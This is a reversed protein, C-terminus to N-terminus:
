RNKYQPKMIKLLGASSSYIRVALWMMLMPLLHYMASAAVDPADPISRQTQWLLCAVIVALEVVSTSLQQIESHTKKTWQWAMAFGVSGAIALSAGAITQTANPVVVMCCMIGVIGSVFYVTVFRWTKLNREAIAGFVWLAFMNPLVHWWGGHPFVYTLLTSWGPLWQGASIRGLLEPHKINYPLVGLANSVRDFGLISQLIATLITVACLTATGMPPLYSPTASSHLRSSLPFKQDGM